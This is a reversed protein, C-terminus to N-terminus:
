TKEINIEFIGFEEFTKYLVKHHNLYANEGEPHHHFFYHFFHFVKHAYDKEVVMLIEM